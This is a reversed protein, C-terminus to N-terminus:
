RFIVPTNVNTVADYKIGSDTSSSLLGYPVPVSVSTAGVSWGLAEM